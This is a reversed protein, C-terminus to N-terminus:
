ELSGYDLLLYLRLVRRVLEAPLQGLACRGRANKARALWLLREVHWFAGCGLLLNAAATRVGVASMGARGGCLGLLGQQTREDRALAQCTAPNALLDRLGRQTERHLVHFEVQPSPTAAPIAHSHPHQTNPPTGDFASHTHQNGSGATCVHALLSGM